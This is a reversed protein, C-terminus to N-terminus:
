REGQDIKQVADSAAARLAPNADLALAQLQRLAPKATSGMGGLLGAATVGDVQGYREKLSGLLYKLGADRDVDVLSRALYTTFSASPAAGSDLLRVIERSSERLGLRGLAIWCEAELVPDSKQTVLARIQDRAPEYGLRGLTRVAAAELKPGGGALLKTVAPALPTAGSGQAAIADLAALCTDVASPDLAAGLATHAEPGLAALANAASSRVDKQPSRLGCGLLVARGASSTAAIAAISRKALDSSKAGLVARALAEDVKDPAALVLAAQALPLVRPDKGDAVIRALAPAASSLDKKPEAALLAGLSAQVVGADPDDLLRVLAATAVTPDAKLSSQMLWESVAQIFRKRTPSDTKDGLLALAKEPGLTGLLVVLAGKGVDDSRAFLKREVIEPAIRALLDPTRLVARLSAAQVEADPDELAAKEIEALVSGDEFALYRLLGFHAKRIGKETSLLGGVLRARLAADPTFGKVSLIDLVTARVRESPDALHALLIPAMLADPYAKRAENLAESADRALREDESAALPLIRAVTASAIAATNEKQEVVARLLRTGQAALSKERLLAEVVPLAAAGVTPDNATSLIDDKLTPHAAVAALYFGVALKPDIGYSAVARLTSVALGLRVAEDKTEEYAEHLRADIAGLVLPAAVRPDRPMSALKAAAWRRSAPDTDHDLVRLCFATITERDRNAIEPFARELHKIAQISVETDKVKGITPALADAGDRDLARVGAFAADRVMVEKDDLHAVLAPLAHKASSGVRAIAYAADRRVYKDQDELMEELARESEDGGAVQIVRVAARRIRQDSDKRAATVKPLSARAAQDGLEGLAELAALRVDADKDGLGRELLPRLKEAGVLRGNSVATIARSREVARKDDLALALIRVTEGSPFLIRKVEERIRRGLATLHLQHFFLDPNFSRQEKEVQILDLLTRALDVEAQGPDGAVVVERLELAAQGLDKEAIERLAIAVEALTTQAYHQDERWRAARDLFTDAGIEDDLFHGLDERFLADTDRHEAMGVLIKKAEARDNRELALLALGLRAHGSTAADPLAAATEFEARAGKADRSLRLAHALALRAEGHDREEALVERLVKVAAPRELPDARLLAEAIVHRVDCRLERSFDDLSAELPRLEKLGEELKGARLELIAHCIPVLLGPKYEEDIGLEAVATALESPAAPTVLGEAARDLALLFLLRRTDQTREKRLEAIARERDNRVVFVRARLAYARASIAKEQAVYPNNELGTLEQLHITKQFATDIEILAQDLDLLFVRREAVDLDTQSALLLLEHNDPAKKLAREYLVRRALPNDKLAPQGAREILDQVDRAIARRIAGGFFVFFLAAWAAVFIISLFRDSLRTGSAAPASRKVEGVFARIDPGEILALSRDAAAKEASGPEAAGAVGRVYDRARVVAGAVEKLSKELKGIAKPDRKLGLEQITALAKTDAQSMGGKLGTERYVQASFIANLLAKTLATILSMDLLLRAYFVAWGALATDVSGSFLKIGIKDPFRFFIQTSLLTDVGLLYLDSTDPPVGEPPLSLIWTWRILEVMSVYYLPVMLFAVGKRYDTTSKSFTMRWVVFAVLAAVGLTVPSNKGALFALFPVAGFIVLTFGMIRATRGLKTEDAPKPDRWLWQYTLTRYTPVLVEKFLFLDLLYALQAGLGVDHRKTIGAECSPCVKRWWANWKRDLPFYAVCAQRVIALAGGAGGLWYGLADTNGLKALLWGVLPTGGGKNLKVLVLLTAGAGTAVLLVLTVLSLVVTLVRETLSLPEKLVGKECRPCQVYVSEEPAERDLLADVTEWSARDRSVRTRGSVLGIRRREIIAALALPGETGATSEVFFGSEEVL